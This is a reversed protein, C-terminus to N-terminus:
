VAPATGLTIKYTKSSGDPLTMVVTIVAGPAYSRIKVIAADRNSIKVGDISKIISGVLVGAKEAGEGPTLQLIKAQTDATVDDFVVGMVPRTSKGTAIIEDIVRKAENIPISFGLGISGSTGGSTLTAIASNVGIIRGQADVLAGGSNGPNIAADTQIANVYSTSDTTGATVPRNLASIIGQTVTNALGLPSGIALVEDGVSVKSSDGLSIAPLNGKKVQLVAIDYMRDRGVITAPIEEGDALEVKITGSTAAAEVVHNNTIIYSISSSSKYISGSGTGGGTTTKVSISVVSPTVLASISKANISNNGIEIATKNAPCSGSKALTLAQTRNDACVVVSGATSTTAATAVTGAFLAGAVFAITVKIPTRTIKM